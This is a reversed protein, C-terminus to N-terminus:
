PRAVLADGRHDVAVCFSATPCSVATLPQGPDVVARTWSGGSWELAGGHDDVAVCRSATPCSVATPSIGIATASAQGPEIRTPASWGQGNFSLVEGRQDVAACFTTTPCSIGTFSSSVGHPNPVSWRQGDWHSIGGSTSMCWSASRCSIASVSGWDGATRVWSGGREAFADGEADVAACYGSPACGVAELGQAGQLPVPPAWGQGNFSVVQGAGTTIAVCDSTSACSVSIGGQGIQQPGPPTPGSWTTGDLHYARGAADLAICATPSACSVAQLAAGDALPQPAGFRLPLDVSPSTTSSPSAGASPASRHASAPPEGTSSRPTTCGALAVVAAALLPLLRHAGRVHVEM